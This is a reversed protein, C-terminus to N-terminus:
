LRDSGLSHHAARWLDHMCRYLLHGARLQLKSFFAISRNLITVVM